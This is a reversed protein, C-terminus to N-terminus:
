RTKNNNEETQRKFRKKITVIVHVICLPLMQWM